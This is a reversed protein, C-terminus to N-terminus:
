GQEEEMEEAQQYGKNDKSHATDNEALQGDRIYGCLRWIWSHIVMTANKGSLYLAHEQFIKDQARLQEIGKTGLLLQMNYVPMAQGMEDQLRITHYFDEDAHDKNFMDFSMTIPGRQNKAINDASTLFQIKNTSNPLPGLWLVALGPKLGKEGKTREAESSKSPYTSCRWLHSSDENKSALIRLYSVIRSRMQRLIFSPLDSRLFIKQLEKPALVSRWRVPIRSRYSRNNMGALKAIAAVTSIVYSGALKPSLTEGAVPLSNSKEPSDTRREPDNEAQSPDQIDSSRPDLGLEELLKRDTATENLSIPVEWIEDIDPHRRLTFPVLFALPLRANTLRCARVPTSLLKAQYITLPVLTAM